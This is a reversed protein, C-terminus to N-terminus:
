SVVSAAEGVEYVYKGSKVLHDCIREKANRNGLRELADLLANVSADRGRTNVWTMLMEYLAEKQDMTRARAVCIDNDTLGMSRMLPNWSNFPIMNSFDDFFHRLSEIPDEDNAPVLLGRRMQSGDTGAPRLLHETEGPSEVMVGALEAHEQHELEQESALTPLLDGNSLAMNCANDLAEPGRPAHSCWFFVRNRCMTAAGSGQLICSRLCCYVFVALGFVLVIVVTVVFALIVWEPTGSSPSLATPLSTTVLQGPDPADGHAQTGSEQDVCKLDNWPTCSKAEVKGDPCRPSCKQCFETSDEDQYTGPKCRCQTNRTGTCPAIEEKDPPCISCLHCSPLTNSHDTFDENDTRTTCDGSHKSLYFGPPCKESLTANWRQPAALQQHVRNLRTTTLSAALVLQLLASVILVPTKPRWRRRRANVEESRLAPARGVQRLWTRRTRRSLVPPPPNCGPLNM